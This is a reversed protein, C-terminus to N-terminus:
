RRFLGNRPPIPPSNLYYSIGASMTYDYDLSVSVISQDVGGFYCSCFFVAGGFYCSCFFIRNVSSFDFFPSVAEGSLTREKVVVLWFSEM